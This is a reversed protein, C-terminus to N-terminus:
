PFAGFDDRRYQHVLLRLAEPEIVEVADGWSYLHWAMELHGSARFKVLLSGDSEEVVEQRPHFIFERAVGAAAPTFRWVVDSLEADSQFSGFALAAHNELNFDPDKTFFQPEIHVSIIRDLRYHKIREGEAHVRGVLYRRIGLLLGYPEVLRPPTDFPRDKGYSMSMLFPGRLAAAITSLMLPDQSARPGPRCAFGHAELIAEADSETRRAHPKPMAALLRDRIRRLAEAENPAGEREARSISMQLAVLESDRVGQAMVLRIDNNAISWYKRQMDDSHTVVGAFSNELARTMRQATRYDCDFEDVIEALTVGFHRAAAMEALKLLDIAKRFSM